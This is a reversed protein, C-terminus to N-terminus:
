EKDLFEKIPAGEEEVLMRRPFGDYKKELPNIAVEQRTGHYADIDFKNKFSKAFDSINEIVPKTLKSIAGSAM